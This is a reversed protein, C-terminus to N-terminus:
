ITARREAPQLRHAERLKKLSSAARHRNHEPTRSASTLIESAFFAAPIARKKAIDRRRVAEQPGFCETARITVGVGPTASARMSGGGSGGTRSVETGCGGAAVGVGMETGEGIGGDRGVARGVLGAASTRGDGGGGVSVEEGTGVRVAGGRETVDGVAGGVRTGGAGAGAVAVGTEAVTEGV